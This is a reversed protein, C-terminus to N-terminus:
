PEWADHTKLPSLLAPTEVEEIPDFQPARVRSVITVTCALLLLTMDKTNYYVQLNGNMVFKSEGTKLKGVTYLKEL